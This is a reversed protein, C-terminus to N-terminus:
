NYRSVNNVLKDAEDQDLGVALARDHLHKEWNPIQALKLQQGIAFLTNNRRGAPIPKKLDQLLDAQMILVEEPDELELTKTIVAATAAKRQQHALLRDKIRIPLEAIHRRNWRQSPYHYVCGTGRFDVGQEIGIRDAYAAFGADPDWEDESVKYFLHYGDGSKSTEALTPPLMGLSAAHEIGGNKGDIDICVVRMSRMVFAFANRNQVWGHLIPSMQFRGKAYKEMFAPKGDKSQLGWGPDTTGDKWTRVLAIGKPGAHPELQGVPVPIEEDYTDSLWWPQFM